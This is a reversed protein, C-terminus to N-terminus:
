AGDLRVLRSGRDWRRAEQACLLSCTRFVAEFFEGGWKASSFDSHSPPPLRGRRIVTARKAAEASTHAVAGSGRELPEAESHRFSILDREEVEEERDHKGRVSESRRRSPILGIWSPGSTNSIAAEAAGAGEVSSPTLNRKVCSLGNKVRTFWSKVPTFQSKV